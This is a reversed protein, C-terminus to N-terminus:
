RAGKSAESGRVRQAQRRLAEPMWRLRLVSADRDILCAHWPLWTDNSHNLPYNQRRRARKRSPLSSTGPRPPAEIHGAAQGRTAGGRRGVELLIRRPGRGASGAGPGASGVARMGAKSAVAIPAAASPSGTRLGLADQHCGSPACQRRSAGFRRHPVAHPRGPTRSHMGMAVVPRGM